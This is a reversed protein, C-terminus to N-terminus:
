GLDLRSIVRLCNFGEMQHTINAAKSQVSFILNFFVITNAKPNKQTLSKDQSNIDIYVFTIIVM